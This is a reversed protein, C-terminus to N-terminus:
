PTPQERSHERSEVLKPSNPTETPTGLVPKRWWLVRVVSRVSILYSDLARPREHTINCTTNCSSMALSRGEGM